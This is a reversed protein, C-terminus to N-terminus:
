PDNAFLLYPRCLVVTWPMVEWCPGGEAIRGPIGGLADERCKLGASVQGAM